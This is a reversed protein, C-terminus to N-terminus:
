VLKSLKCLTKSEHCEYPFMFTQLLSMACSQYCGDDDWTPAGCKMFAQKNILNNYSWRHIHHLGCYFLQSSIKFKKKEWRKKAKRDARYEISHNQLIKHNNFLIIEKSQFIGCSWTSFAKKRYIFYSNGYIVLLLSLLLTCSFFYKM